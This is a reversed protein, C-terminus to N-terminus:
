DEDELEDDDPTLYDRRLRTSGADIIGLCRIWDLGPSINWGVVHGGEPDIWEHFLIWGGLLDHKEWGRLLEHIRESAADDALDEPHHAPGVFPDPPGVEAPAEPGEEGAGEVSRDRAGPSRGSGQEPLGEREHRVPVRGPGEEHADQEGKRAAPM